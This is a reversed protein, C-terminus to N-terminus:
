ALESEIPIKLFIRFGNDQNISLSANMNNAREQMSILGLGSSNRSKKNEGNDYILLYYNDGSEKLSIDVRTAISHKKTNTLAERTIAMVNSHIDPRPKSNIKITLYVPCYKYSDALTELDKHIDLSQEHLDHVSKRVEDMATQLTKSLDDLQKSKEENSDLKMVETQLIAASLRHGINDHIEKSIRNREQLQANRSSNLLNENMLLIERNLKDKSITTQDLETLYRDLTSFTETTRYALWASLVSNLILIIKAILDIERSLHLLSISAFTSGIPHSFQYVVLPTAAVIQPYFMSFIHLVILVITNLVTNLYKIGSLESALRSLYAIGLIFTFIYIIAITQSTDTSQADMLYANTIAFAYIFFLNIADLVRNQM